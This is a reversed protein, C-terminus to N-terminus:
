SRKLIKVARDAHWVRWLSARQSCLRRRMKFDLLNSQRKLDDVLALARQKLFNRRSFEAACALARKVASFVYVCFIAKKVHQLHM